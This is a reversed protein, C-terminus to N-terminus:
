HNLLAEFIQRQNLLLQELVNPKFAERKNHHLHKVYAKNILMVLKTSEQGKSERYRYEIKFNLKLSPNNVNNITVSSNNATMSWEKGGAALDKLVPVIADNHSFTFNENKRLGRADVLTSNNNSAGSYYMQAILYKRAPGSVSPDKSRIDKFLKTRAALSGVRGRFEKEIARRSKLIEPDDMKNELEKYESVLSLLSKLEGQQLEDVTHNKKISAEVNGMLEKLANVRILKASNRGSSVLAKTPISNATKEVKDLKSMYGTVEALDGLGLDVHMNGKLDSDKALFEKFGETSGKGLPTKKIDLLNKLSTGYYYIEQDRKVAGSRVGFKAYGPNLELVKQAKAVKVMQEAREQRFGSKVLAKIAQNRDNFIEIVDDRKGMGVVRGVPLIYDAKRTKIGAKSADILAKFMDKSNPGVFTELFAITAMDSADIAGMERTQSWEAHVQKMKEIKHAFNESLIKAVGCSKPEAPTLIGSKQIMTTDKQCRQIMELLPLIEEMSVGRFEEDSSKDTLGSFDSFRPNVSFKQKMTNLTLKLIGTTDKFNLGNEEDTDVSITVSGDSMEIFYDEIFDRDDQSLTDDSKSLVTFLKIFRDAVRSQLTPDVPDTNPTLSGLGERNLKVANLIHSEISMGNDGLIVNTFEEFTAFKKSGDLLTKPTNDWCNELIPGIEEETRISIPSAQQMMEQAQMQQSAQMTPDQGMQEGQGEQGKESEQSNEVFYNVFEDWDQNIFKQNYGGLASYVGNKNSAANAFKPEGKKTFFIFLNKSIGPVKYSNYSTAGQQQAIMMESKARAEANPDAAEVLRLKLKRKKLKNYSELLQHFYEM